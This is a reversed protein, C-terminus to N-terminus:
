SFSINIKKNVAHAIKDLLNLSPVRNDKGSELRAIVPQTTNAKEALEKQSLGSKIRMEYIRQSINSIIQSRDFYTIFEEENLKEEIHEDISLGIYKNMM